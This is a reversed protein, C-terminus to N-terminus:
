ADEFDRFIDANQKLYKYSQALINSDKKSLEDVLFEADTTLASYYTTSVLRNYERGDQPPNDEDKEYEQVMISVTGGKIYQVNAVKSYLFKNGQKYKRKLAM